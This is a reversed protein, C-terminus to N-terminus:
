QQMNREGKGGGNAVTQSSGQRLFTTGPRDDNGTWDQMEVSELGLRGSLCSVKVGISCMDWEGDKRYKDPASPYVQTDAIPTRRENIRSNQHARHSLRPSPTPPQIEAVIIHM